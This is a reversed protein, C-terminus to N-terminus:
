RRRSFFFPLNNKVLDYGNYAYVYCDSTVDCGNVMYVHLSVRLGSQIIASIEVFDRAPNVGLCYLGLKPVLAQFCLASCEVPDPWIM